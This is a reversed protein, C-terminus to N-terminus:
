NRKTILEKYEPFLNIKDGYLQIIPYNNSYSGDGCFFGHLYPNKMEQKTDVIPLDYKYIVDNLKLDKTFVISKKCNEPHLQNGTRIFWKHNPTCKLNMGNSLTIEILESDGTYKIITKSFELGNWINIEKNNNEEINIYGKDTLLKTDASVCHINEIMLQFGYFCKIAPDDFKDLFNMNLNDNVLGDFGAFFSLVQKIFHQELKTLKQFDKIDETLDIEEATWFSNEAQKYMEWAWKSKPKIPFLVYKDSLGGVENKKNKEKVGEKVGEKVVEKVVEKQYM